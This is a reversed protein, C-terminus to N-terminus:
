TRGHLAVLPGASGTTSREVGHAVIDVREVSTIETQNWKARTFPDVTLMMQESHGFAVGLTFNGFLLISVGNYTTGAGSPM